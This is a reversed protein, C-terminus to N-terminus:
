LTVLPKGSNTAGLTDKRHTLISPDVGILVNIDTGHKKFSYASGKHKDKQFM